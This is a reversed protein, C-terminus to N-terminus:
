VLSRASTTSCCSHRERGCAASEDATPGFEDIVKANYQEPTEAM